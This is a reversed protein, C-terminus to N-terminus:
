HITHQYNHNLGCDIFWRIIFILWIKIRNMMRKHFHSLDMEGSKRYRESMRGHFKIKDDNSMNEYEEKSPTPFLSQEWGEKSKGDEPNYPATYNPHNRM